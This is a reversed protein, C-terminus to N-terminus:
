KLQANLADALKKRALIIWDGVTSAPVESREEIEKYTFGYRAHLWLVEKQEETLDIDPYEAWFTKQLAIEGEDSFAALKAGHVPIEPLCDTVTEGRRVQKRYHDVFLQYAKRRLLPLTGIKDEEFNLLVVRWLEQTLNEADQWQSTLRYLYNLLYAHYKDVAASVAELRREFAAEAVDPPSPITKLNAM